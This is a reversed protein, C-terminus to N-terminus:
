QRKMEMDWLQILIDIDLSSLQLFAKKAVELDDLKWTGLGIQPIFVNENLQITEM